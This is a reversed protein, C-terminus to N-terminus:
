RGSEVFRYNAPIQAIAQKDVTVPLPQENARLDIEAQAGAPIIGIM